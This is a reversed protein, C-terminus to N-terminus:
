SLTLHANDESLRGLPYIVPPILPQSQYIVVKRLEGLPRFLDRTEGLVLDVAQSSYHPGQLSQSGYLIFYIIIIEVRRTVRMSIYAALASPFHTNRNMQSIRLDAHQLRPVPPLLCTPPFLQAGSCHQTLPSQPNGLLCPSIALAPSVWLLLIPTTINLSALDKGQSKQGRRHGADVGRQNSSRLCYFLSWGGLGPWRRGM